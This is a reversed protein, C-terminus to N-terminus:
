FQIQLRIAWQIMAGAIIVAFLGSILLPDPIWMVWRGQYGSALLWYAAPVAMLAMLFGGLNSQASKILRGRTALAWSTTMGCSPCPIGFAFQIGCPPLGLQEHTGIGSPDPSLTSALVLLAIIGAGLGCYVVRLIWPIQVEASVVPAFTPDPTKQQSSPIQM